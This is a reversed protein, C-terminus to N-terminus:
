ATFRPFPWRDIYRVFSTRALPIECMRARPYLWGVRRGVGGAEAGGARGRGSQQRQQWARGADVHRRRGCGCRPRAMRATKARTRMKATRTARAGHDGANADPQGIRRRRRRYYPWLRHPPAPGASPQGHPSCWARSPGCADRNRPASAAAGRQSSIRGICFKRQSQCM